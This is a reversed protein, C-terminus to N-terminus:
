DFHNRKSMLTFSVFKFTVLEFRDKESKSTGEDM